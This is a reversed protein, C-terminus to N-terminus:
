LGAVENSSIACDLLNLSNRVRIFRERDYNDDPVVDKLGPVGDTKSFKVAARLVAGEIEFGERHFRTDAADYLSEAGRAALLEDLPTDFLQARRELRQLEESSLGQKGAAIERERDTPQMASVISNGLANGFADTTEDYSHKTTDAFLYAHLNIRQAHTHHTHTRVQQM